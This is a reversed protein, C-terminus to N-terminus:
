RKRDIWWAREMKEFGIKAYYNEAAPAAILVLTTGQGIVLRTQRVLEKGIGRHQYAVDVALDSLYCAFCFDTLSRAVGVLRDGDRATLLLDAKQIMQMLRPLDDTPRRITSRVFLDSLEVASLHPETQYDIPM